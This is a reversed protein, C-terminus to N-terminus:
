MSVRQRQGRLAAARANEQGVRALLVDSFGQCFEDLKGEPLLHPMLTPTGGTKEILYIRGANITVDDGPMLMDRAIAKANRASGFRADYFRKMRSLYGGGRYYADVADAINVGDRVRMAINYGDADEILDRLKFTGNGDVKALKQDCYTYGSSFSGSDRRWEGYFTMWDGGWGVVDGRGTSTGSPRGKLYIGNCTAGFHSVHIDIGYFPERVEKIMQVGSSNVHNVFGDDLEGILRRWQVDNYDEHRLFEM